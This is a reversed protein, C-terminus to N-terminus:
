SLHGRHIIHNQFNLVQFLMKLGLLAHEMSHITNGRSNVGLCDMVFQM